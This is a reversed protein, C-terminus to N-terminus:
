SGDCKTKAAILSNNTQLWNMECFSMEFRTNGPYVWQREEKQVFRRDEKKRPM